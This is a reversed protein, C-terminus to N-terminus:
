FPKAVMMWTILAVAALEYVHAAGVVRDRFAASLEPTVSGLALAGTLAQAFVKGRPLFVLRILPIMSLYLITSVLLWNSPSGQLSGPLPWRQLWATVLGFGFVAFSGPIVMWREFYGALRVLTKVMQVDTTRSAQWMTLTRGLLGSIFWMATTVHLFKMFLTM